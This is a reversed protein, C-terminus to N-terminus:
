LKVLLKVEPWIFPLVTLAGLGLATGALAISVVLSEGLLSIGPLLFESSLLYVGLSALATGGLVRVPTSGVSLVGKVRRNLLILLLAAQFTFALSNALGIGPAGLVRYFLVGSVTFVLAMATSTWLPTIADKQAYFSRVLVELLSHGILGILFARATWVILSTTADPFGFVRVLPPLVLALLAAVPLTIALLVRFTRSLSDYFAATEGRAVQESLTPLLATGLATAILTEPMQMILWGYSLATVSGESLRSGLNDTVLFVLQIFFVNAVRPGMLALVRRVGPDHLDIAPSWRFGYRLLGPVQVALFLFAGIITGWVLGYVGLGYGPLTLPGLQYAEEPALVLVGFLTGVDYMAPALAPLFFHQNAHLGAMVLGSLSFILTAILNLRMLNVVLEQQEPTYGPGLGLSVLQHAFVAATLSLVATLLFVLNAVRSFLDWSAQRGKHEMYESLMPIFAIALAGGSILAFLLDPVNNATNFADLIDISNSFQRAILVQRAFGLVKELGLFVALMLSIRFIRSM